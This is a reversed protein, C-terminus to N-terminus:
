GRGEEGELLPLRVARHRWRRVTIRALLGTLLGLLGMPAHRSLHSRGQLSHDRSWLEGRKRGVRLIHLPPSCSSTVVMRYCFGLSASFHWHPPNLLSSASERGLAPGSGRTWAEHVSLGLLDTADPADRQSPVTGKASLSLWRQAWLASPSGAAGEPFRM